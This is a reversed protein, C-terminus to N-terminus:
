SKGTLIELKRRLVEKKLNFIEMKAFYEARAMEKVEESWKKEGEGSDETCSPPQQDAPEDEKGFESTDTTSASDDKPDEQQDADDDYENYNEKTVNPNIRSLQEEITDPENIEAGSPGGGGTM